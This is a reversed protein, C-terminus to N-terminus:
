TEIKQDRSKVKSCVHVSRWRVLDLDLSLRFMLKACSWDCSTGVLKVLILAAEAKSPAAWSWSTQYCSWQVSQYAPGKTGLHSHSVPPFLLGLAAFVTM